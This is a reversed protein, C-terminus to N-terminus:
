LICGIGEYTTHFSVQRHFVEEFLDAKKTAAELEWSCDLESQVGIEVLDGIPEVSTISVKSGHTRDLGDAIRLISSLRLVTERDAHRLAAFGKHSLKPHAKRHYRAVNAVIAQERDSLGTIDSDMITTYSRKHHKSQGEYWGIDHLLAAYTLLDRDSDSLSHLSRSCDFFECALRAVTEAHEFDHNYRSALQRVNDITSIM